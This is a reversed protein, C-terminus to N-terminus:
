YLTNATGSVMPDLGGFFDPPTLALLHRTAPFFALAFSHQSTRPGALTGSQKTTGATSGAAAM